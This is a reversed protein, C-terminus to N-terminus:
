KAKPEFATIEKQQDAKIKAAMQRVDPKTLRPMFDDVMKLAERHHAIVDRYFARDYEAGSKTQLADIMAKDPPMVMPTVTEGYMSQVMGIMKKQEDAQKTHLQHADNQTSPQSAKTMAPMAMQIMGEHHDVMSRLFEQDADKAAPRNMGPMAAMASAASDAAPAGASTDAAREGSRACSVAACVVVVAALYRSHSLLM